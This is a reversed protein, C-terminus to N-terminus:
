RKNKKKPYEQRSKSIAMYIDDISNKKNSLRLTTSESKNMDISEPKILANVLVEDRAECGCNETKLVEAVVSNATKESLQDELDKIRKELVATQYDFVAQLESIETLQTTVQSELDKCKAQQDLVELRAIKLQEELGFIDSSQKYDRELQKDAWEDCRKGWHIFRSIM